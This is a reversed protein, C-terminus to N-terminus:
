LFGVIQTELWTQCLDAKVAESDPYFSSIKSILLLSITSDTYHFCLHQDATCNSCLQDADKNECLCITLFRTHRSMHIKEFKSCTNILRKAMYKKQRRKINM